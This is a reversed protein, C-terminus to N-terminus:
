LIFNYSLSLDCLVRIYYYIQYYVQYCVKFYGHMVIFIIHKFKSLISHKIVVTHIMVSGLNEIDNMSRTIASM